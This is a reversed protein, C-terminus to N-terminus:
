GRQLVRAFDYGQSIRVNNAVFIPNLRNAGWTWLESNTLIAFSITPALGFRAYAVNDMIFVPTMQFTTTGDGLQGESNNGWAWLEGNTEVALTSVDM